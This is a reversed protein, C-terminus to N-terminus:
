AARSLSCVPISIWRTPKVGKKFIREIKEAVKGDIWVEDCYPCVMSPVDEFLVRKMGVRKEYATKKPILFGGCNGCKRKKM